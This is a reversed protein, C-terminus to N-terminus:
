RAYQTWPIGTGTWRWPRRELIPLKDWEELYSHLFDQNNKRTSLWTWDDFAAAAIERLQESAEYWYRREAVHQISLRRRRFPQKM